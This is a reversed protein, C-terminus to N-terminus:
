VTKRNKESFVSTVSTEQVYNIVQCPLPNSDSLKSLVSNHGVCFWCNVIGHHCQHYFSHLRKTNNEGSALPLTM